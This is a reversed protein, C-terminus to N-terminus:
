EDDLKSDHLAERLKTGERPSAGYEVIVRELQDSSLLEKGLEVKSIFPASVNLFKALDSQRVKRKIRFKRLETGIPSGIRDTSGSIAAAKRPLASRDASGIRLNFFPTFRTEIPVKYKGAAYVLFVVLSIFLLALAGVALLIPEWGFIRLLEGIQHM